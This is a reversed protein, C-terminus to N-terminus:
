GDPAPPDLTDTLLAEWDYLVGSRRGARILVAKHLALRMLRDLEGVSDALTAEDGDLSRLGGPQGGHVVASRARYIRRFFERIQARRHPSDDIFLAARLALRYTLEGRDESRGTDTLFLAEAAIVLDILKDEDSPRLPADRLRRLAVTLAKDGAVAPAALHLWTEQLAPVKAPELVCPPAEGPRAVFKRAYGGGFGPILVSPMSASAAAGACVSGGAVLRLATVLRDGLETAIGLDLEAPWPTPPDADDGIVKPLLVEKALAWQDLRSVWRVEGMGVPDPRGPITGWDLSASIEQDTMPRLQWGDGLYVSGGQETADFGLLPVWMVESIERALLAGEIEAYLEGFRAPDFDFSQAHVVLPELLHFRLTINLDTHTQSVPAALL